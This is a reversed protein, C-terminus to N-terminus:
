YELLVLKELHTKTGFIGLETRMDGQSGNFCQDRVEKMFHSEWLHQRSLVLREDGGAGAANQMASEIYDSSRSVARLADTPNCFRPIAPATTRRAYFNIAFSKSLYFARDVLIRRSPKQDHFAMYSLAVSQTVAYSEHARIPFQSELVPPLIIAYHREYTEVADPNETIYKLLDLLSKSAEMIKLDHNLGM